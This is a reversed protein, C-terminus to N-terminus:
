RLFEHSECFVKDGGDDSGKRRERWCRSGGHRTRRNRGLGCVRRQDLHLVTPMMALPMMALAVM